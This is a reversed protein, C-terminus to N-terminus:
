ATVEERRPDFGDAFHDAILTLRVHRRQLAKRAAPSLATDFVLLTSISQATHRLANVTERAQEVTLVYGITQNMM